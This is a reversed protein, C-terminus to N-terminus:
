HNTNFERTNILSWILDDFATNRDAADAFHQLCIEAEAESPVRALVRLYLRQVLSRDDLELLDRITGEKIKKIISADNMTFIFRRM